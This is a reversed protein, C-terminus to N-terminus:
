YRIKTPKGSNTAARFKVTVSAEGPEDHNDFVVDIRKPIKLSVKADNGENEMGRCFITTAGDDNSSITRGDQIAAPDSTGDQSVSLTGDSNLCSSCFSAISGAANAATNTRSNEIYKIYAPIAVGALVAVIVAVVVVEILTFGRSQGPRDKMDNM